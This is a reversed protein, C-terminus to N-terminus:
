GKFMVKDGDVMGKDVEFNLDRPKMQIKEGQCVPCLQKQSKGSGQCKNCKMEIQKTTDKVTVTRFMKGTGNCHECPNIHGGEDGTGKCKRCIQGRRFSFTM